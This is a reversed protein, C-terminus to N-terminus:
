LNNKIGLFFHPPQDTIIPVPKLFYNLAHPLVDRVWVYNMACEVWVSSLTSRKWQATFKALLHSLSEERLIELSRQESSM